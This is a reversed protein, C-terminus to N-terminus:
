SRHGAIKDSGHSAKKARRMVFLLPIMFAFMYGLLQFADLFSLLQAQEGILTAVSTKARTAADVPDAGHRTWAEALRELTARSAPDYPDFHNAVIQQHRIASRTLYTSVIAIGM